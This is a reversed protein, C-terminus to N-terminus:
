CKHKTKVPRTKLLPSIHFCVRRNERMTKRFIPIPFFVISSLIWSSAKHRTSANLFVLPTCTKTYNSPITQTSQTSYCTSWLSICHNLHLMLKSKAWMGTTLYSPTPKRLNKLYWAMLPKSMKVMHSVTDCLIWRNEHYHSSCLLLFLTLLTKFPGTIAM